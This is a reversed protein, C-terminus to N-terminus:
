RQVQVKVPLQEGTQIVRMVIASNGAEASAKISISAKGNAPIELNEPAIEFGGPKGTLALSVTGPASNTFTVEAKEGPKLTISPRDPTVKGLAFDPTTPISVPMGPPQPQGKGAGGLLGFPTQRLSEPDIYWYWKGKYIKWTSIAPLKVPKGAFGPMALHQGCLATVRAHTFNESYEIRQLEFDLYTPKNASYYYDRSDPAVLKEAKRFQGNVHIQFFESARERLAKDVKAPPTGNTQAMLGAACLSLALIRIMSRM